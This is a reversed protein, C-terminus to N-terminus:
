RTNGNNERGNMGQEILQTLRENIRTFNERDKQSLQNFAEFEIKDLDAIIKECLVCGSQTLYYLRLRKDVVSDKKYVLGKKELNSMVSSVTQKPINLVQCIEKQSCGDKHHYIEDLATMTARTLHYRGAYKSYLSEIYLWQVYWSKIHEDIEM